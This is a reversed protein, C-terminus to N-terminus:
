HRHLHCDVRFRRSRRFRAAFVLVGRLVFFELQLGKTLSSLSSKASLQLSSGGSPPKIRNNPGMLQSYTVTSRTSSTLMEGVPTWGSFDDTDMNTNVNLEPWTCKTTYITLFSPDSYFLFLSPSKLQGRKLLLLFMFRGISTTCIITCPLTMKHRITWNVPLQSWEAEFNAGNRHTFFGLLLYPNM